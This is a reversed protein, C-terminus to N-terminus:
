IFHSLLVLGLWIIKGIFPACLLLLLAPLIISLEASKFTHEINVQIPKM